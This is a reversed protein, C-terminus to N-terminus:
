RLGSATAAYADDPNPLRCGVHEQGVGETVLESILQCHWPFRDLIVSTTALLLLETAISLRDFGLM